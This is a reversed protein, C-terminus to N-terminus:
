GAQLRVVWAAPESSAWAAALREQGSCAARSVERYAVRLTIPRALPFPALEVVDDAVFRAHVEVGAVRAPRHVWSPASGEDSGPATLCITLSLLDLARVLELGDRVASAEEGYGLVSALRARRAAENRAFAAEGPPVFAAYHLSCIMAAGPDIREVEDLGRAYLVAREAATLDTFDEVRDGDEALRPAADRAEWALDHLAAAQVVDRPPGAPWPAGRWAHAMDGCMLGHDHQTFLRITDGRPQVLMLLPHFDPTVM